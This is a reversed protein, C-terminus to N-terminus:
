ITQFKEVLYGLHEVVGDSCMKALKETVTRQSCNRTRGFLDAERLAFMM